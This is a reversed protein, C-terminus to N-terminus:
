RASAELQVYVADFTTQLIQTGQEGEWDVALPDLQNLQLGLMASVFDRIEEEM